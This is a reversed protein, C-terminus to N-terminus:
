RSAAQFHTESLTDLQRDYLQIESIRNLQRDRLVIRGDASSTALIQGAADEVIRAVMTQDSVQRVASGGRLSWEIIGRQSGIIATEAQWNMCFCFLRGRDIAGQQLLEGSQLDWRCLTGDYSVSAAQSGDPSMSVDMVDETHGKLQRALQFPDKFSWVGLTGDRSASLLVQRNSSQALRPITGDHCYSPTGEAVIAVGKTDDKINWLRISMDDGASVIKSDNLWAVDHM